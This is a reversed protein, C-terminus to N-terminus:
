VTRNYGMHMYSTVPTAGYDHGPATKCTTAARRREGRDIAASAISVCRVDPVSGATRRRARIGPHSGAAASGFAEDAAYGIPLGVQTTAVSGRRKKQAVM